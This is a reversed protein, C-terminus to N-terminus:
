LILVIKGHTHRKELETYAARVESLPYTSEIPVTLEGDAVLQAMEALVEPTSATSSGEAKAGVAKAGEFDIITEIRAPAVGLETALAVYPPGFTDIFADVRDGAAALIRERLGDGHEVPTVGLSHLWGHHDPSAIGIVTAGRLRLLQVVLSGVGGAAASVVVTDDATAEIARVAAYATVGVVYLAGAVEMPLAAPKPILQGVPVSVYDAQSNRRASWGLVEDGVEFGRVGEGVTVVIGALDSGQGSPFTAPYVSELRGERIAAEGPNTGAAAVKVLLEGAPPQEIDVTAIYLEDIGGYRDFRVARGHSSLEMEAAYAAM